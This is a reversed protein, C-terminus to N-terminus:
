GTLTVVDDSIAVKVGEVNYESLKTNIAAAKDVTAEAENAGFIKEGADKIFSFIGM